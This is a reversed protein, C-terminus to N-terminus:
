FYTVKGTIKVTAGQDQLRQVIMQPSSSPVVITAPLGMKKAVFAAAMGANGGSSFFLLLLGSFTKINDFHSLESHYLINYRQQFTVQLASSEKPSAPWSCLPASVCPSSKYIRNQRHHCM